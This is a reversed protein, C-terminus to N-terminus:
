FLSFGKHPLRGERFGAVEFHQQASEVVGQRMAEAVDPNNELYYREDVLIRKPMRGEYYGTAYYHESASRVQNTEVAEAIDDNTTLYYKEDFM